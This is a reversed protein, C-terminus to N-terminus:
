SNDPTLRMVEQKYLPKEMDSGMESPFVKESFECVNSNPSLSISKLTFMSSMDSAIGALIAVIFITSYVLSYIKM